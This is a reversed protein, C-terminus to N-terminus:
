SEIHINSNKNVLSANSDYQQKNQTMATSLISLSTGEAHKDLLLQLTTDNGSSL